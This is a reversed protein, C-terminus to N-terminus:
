FMNLFNSLPDCKHEKEWVINNYSKKEIKWTKTDVFFDPTWKNIIDHNEICYGLPNM